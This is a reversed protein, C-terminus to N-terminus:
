QEIHPMATLTSVQFDKGLSSRMGEDGLAHHIAPVLHLSITRHMSDHGKCIFVLSLLSRCLCLQITQEALDEINELLDALLISLITYGKRLITGSVSLRSASLLAYISCFTTRDSKRCSDYLLLDAQLKKRQEHAALFSDLMWALYDQFAPTPDYSTAAAMSIDVLM